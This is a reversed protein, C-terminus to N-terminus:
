YFIYRDNETICYISTAIIRVDGQTEDVIFRMAGDILDNNLIKIPLNNMGNLITWIIDGKDITISHKGTLKGKDGEEYYSKKIFERLTEANDFEIKLENKM